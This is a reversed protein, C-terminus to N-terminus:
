RFLSKVDPSKTMTLTPCHKLLKNKGEELKVLEQEGPPCLSILKKQTTEDLKSFGKGENEPFITTMKTIREKESNASKLEEKLEKLKADVSVEDGFLESQCKIIETNLAFPMTIRDRLSEVETYLSSLGNKIDVNKLLEEPVSSLTTFSDLATNVEELKKTISLEQEGLIALLYHRLIIDRGASKSDGDLKYTEALDNFSKLMDAASIGVNRSATVWNKFTTEDLPKKQAIDYLHKKLTVESDLHQIAKSYEKNATVKVRQKFWAVYDSQLPTILSKFDWGIYEEEDFSFKIEYGKYQAAAVMIWEMIAASGLQSPLNQGLVHALKALEEIFAEESDTELVKIWMKNFILWDYDQRLEFTNETHNLIGDPMTYFARVSRDAKGDKEIVISATKSHHKEKVDAEEGSEELSTPSFFSFSLLRITM